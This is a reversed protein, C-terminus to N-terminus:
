VLDKSIKWSNNNGISEMSLKETGLDSNGSSEVKISFDDNIKLIDNENIGLKNSSM